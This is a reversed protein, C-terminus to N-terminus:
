LLESKEKLFFLVCGFALFCRQVLSTSYPFFFWGLLFSRSLKCTFCTLLHTPIFFPNRITGFFGSEENSYVGVCVYMCVGLINNNNNNNNNHQQQQPTFLFHSGLKTVGKDVRSLECLNSSMMELALLYIYFGFGVKKISRSNLDPQGM